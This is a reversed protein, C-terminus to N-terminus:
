VLLISINTTPAIGSVAEDVERGRGGSGLGERQVTGGHRVSVPDELQVPSSTATQSVAPSCKTRMPLKSNDKSVRRATVVTTGLEGDENTVKARLNVFVNEDREELAAERRALGSLDHGVGDAAHGTAVSEDAEGILIVLLTRESLHLTNVTAVAGHANGGSGGLVLARTNTRVHAAHTRAGGAHVRGHATGGHGEITSGLGHVLESIGVVGGDENTTKGAVDGLILEAREELAEALDSVDLDGRSLATAENLEDLTVSGLHSDVLHLAVGNTVRTHAQAPAAGLVVGAGSTAGVTGSGRRRGHVWGHAHGRSVLIAPKGRHLNATVGAARGWFM